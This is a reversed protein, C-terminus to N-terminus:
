KPTDIEVVPTNPCANRWMNLFKRATLGADKTKLNIFGFQVVRKTDTLQCNEPTWLVHCLDKKAIWIEARSKFMDKSVKKRLHDLARKMNWDVYKKFKSPSNDNWAKQEEVAKEFTAAAQKLVRLYEKGTGSVLAPVTGGYVTLMGDNPLTRGHRIFYNLPFANVDAMWGGGVGAMALWRKFEFVVDPSIMPEDSLMSIIEQYEPVMRADNESVIHPEWGVDYWSKKWTDILDVSQDNPDYVAPAEFFTYIIPRAEELRRRRTMGTTNSPVVGTTFFIQHKVVFHAIFFLFVIAGFVYVTRASVEKRLCQTTPMIPLLYPSSVPHPSVLTSSSLFPLSNLIIQLTFVCWFREHFALKCDSFFSLHSKTGQMNKM